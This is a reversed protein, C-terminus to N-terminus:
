NIIKKVKSLRSVQYIAYLLIASALYQSPALTTQYLFIDIFVATLPFALEVITAVKAPTKQLGKYYIALAVMGTSLAIIVLRTLHSTNLTSLSSQQQLLFVFGLAIPTAILFRLGTMTLHPLKNLGIKSFATSSGWAFAAGLALLAALATQPNDTLNVQGAPFTVFYAAILALAAWKLYGSELKEKLLFHATFVAFIPQLKQLLFVVSFPIFNVKLLASTFLLTGVVGSFFSVWIIASWTKPKLKLKKLQPFVLPILIISGILHEYFVITAPPLDFLSRRLVGDFAWLLAAILIFLPGKSLHM